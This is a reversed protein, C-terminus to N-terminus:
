LLILRIESGGSMTRLRNAIGQVVGANELGHTIVFLGIITIVAPRSFGSVAEQASVLGTFALALLVLLAVVDARLRNSIILLLASVLIGILILESTTLM